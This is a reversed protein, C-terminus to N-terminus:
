VRRVDMGTGNSSNLGAISVEAKYFGDCDSHAKDALDTGAFLTNSELTDSRSVSRGLSDRALWTATFDAAVHPVLSVQWGLPTDEYTGNQKM